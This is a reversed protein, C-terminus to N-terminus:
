LGKLVVLVSSYVRSFSVILLFGSYVVIVERVFTCFVSCGVLVGHVNLCGCFFGVKLFM